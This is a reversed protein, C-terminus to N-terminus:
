QFPIQLNDHVYQMHLIFALKGKVASYSGLTLFCTIITGPEAKISFLEYM